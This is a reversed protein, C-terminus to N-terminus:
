GTSTKPISSVDLRLLGTGPKEMEIASSWEWETPRECLDRRVPNAHIYDITTWVTEPETINGDFGGGRQWFRHSVKGNPQRDEMKPLYSVANQKVYTIAKRAVSLKITKLVSSISYVPTTPWILLHVHEPMIVYAWLHFQHRKRGIEIADNMWHRSRDKGLFPQRRFCSFTLFHAHGADNFRRCKKRLSTM